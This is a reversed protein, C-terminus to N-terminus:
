IKTHNSDVAWVRRGPQSHSKLSTKTVAVLLAQAPQAGRLGQRACLNLNGGAQGEREALWGAM